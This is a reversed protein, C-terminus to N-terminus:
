TRPVLSGYIIRSRAATDFEASYKLGAAEAGTNEVKSNKLMTEGAFTCSLFMDLSVVM